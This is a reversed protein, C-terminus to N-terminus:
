LAKTLKEAILYYFDGSNERERRPEESKLHERYTNTNVTNEKLLEQLNDKRQPYTLTQLVKCGKEEM